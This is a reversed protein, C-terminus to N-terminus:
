SKDGRGRVHSRHLFGTTDVHTSALHSPTRDAESLRDPILPRLMSGTTALPQLMQGQLCFWSLQRHVHGRDVGCPGRKAEQPRGPLVQQLRLQHGWYLEGNLRESPWASAFSSWM